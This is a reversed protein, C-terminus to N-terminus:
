YLQRTQWNQLNMSSKTLDLTSRLFFMSLVNLQIFCDGGRAICYLYIQKSHLILNNFLYLGTETCSPVSGSWNGDSDCTRTSSGTLSSYGYACTYTVQSGFTTSSISVTVGAPAEPSGCDTYDLL